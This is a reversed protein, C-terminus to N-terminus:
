PAVNPHAGTPTGPPDKPTVSALEQMGTTVIGLAKTLEEAQAKLDALKKSAGTAEADVIGFGANMGGAFGPMAGIAAAHAMSGQATENTEIKTIQARLAALKAKKEENTEANVGLLAQAKKDGEGVGQYQEYSYAANAVAPLILSGATGAAEGAYAAIRALGATGAGTLGSATGATVATTAVAGAGGGALGLVMAALRTFAASVSAAITAQAIEAVLAAGVLKGVGEWASGGVFFDLVRQISPILQTFQEILGPLLPMLKDQMAVQFQTTAIALKRNTETLADKVGADIDAETNPRRLGQIEAAASARGAALSAADTKGGSGELFSQALGTEVGGAQRGFLAPIATIDGKTKVLTDLLIDEVPRLKGGTGKVGVGLAEFADKHMSVEGFIRAASETAEAADIKGGKRKAIQTLAGMTEINSGVNGQFLEATGVLRGGYEALNRIDIAGTKAQGSLALLVEKTRGVDGNMHTFTQGAVTGLAAMSAGSATSYRALDKMLAVGSELNGTERIFADVGELNEGITGGTAIASQRAEGQVDKGTLGGTTASSRVLQGAIKENAIGTSLADGIAFGGGLAAAVGAVRGAMGMVRGTAGGMMSGFSRSRRRITAEIQSAENEAQRIRARSETEAARTREKEASAIAAQGAKIFNLNARQADRETTEREKAQQKAVAVIQKAASTEAAVQAKASAAISSQGAKGVRDFIPVLGLVQAKIQDLGNAVFLM